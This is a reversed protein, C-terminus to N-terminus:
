AMKPERSGNQHGSRDIETTSLAFLATGIIMREIGSAVGLPCVVNQVRGERKGGCPYGTGEEARGEPLNDIALLKKRQEGNHHHNHARQHQRGAGVRALRRNPEVLLIKRLEYAEPSKVPANDPKKPM